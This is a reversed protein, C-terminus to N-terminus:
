KGVEDIHKFVYDAIKNLTAQMKDLIFNTETAASESLDYSVLRDKLFTADKQVSAVLNAVDKQIVFISTGRFQKRRREMWAGLALAGLMLLSTVTYFWFQTIGVGLITLLPKPSVRIIESRVPYSLAGRDDKATVELYYNGKTLPKGINLAWKGEEDPLITDTYIVQEQVDKLAVLLTTGAPTSGNAYLNGEGVYAGPNVYAIVPSPIPLIELALTTESSNGAKDEAAVRVTYKGPALFDLKHTADTTAIKEGNDIRITYRLLGSLQDASAYSLTPNPVASPNGESVAVEFGVPPATDIALRYHATTGWGINNKFRVHLYQIGNELAPFMKDDFLGESTTPASLPDHNIVAAVGSVDAPLEWQALFPSSLNHWAAQDPYFPITISPARAAVSAQVPARTIQVPKPVLPIALPVEENTGAEVAATIKLGNTHSLINTGAGDAATVASDTLSVDAIGNGKMRFVVRLVQLSKGSLGSTSGTTFSVMGNESSIVPEQLWFSFVSGAKDARVVELVDKPYKLTTQVANASATETDLKINLAFESGATISGNESLVGLVAAHANVAGFFLIAFFIGFFTSKKM